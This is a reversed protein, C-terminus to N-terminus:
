RKTPESYSGWFPVICISSSSHMTCAHSRQHYPLVQVTFFASRKERERRRSKKKRERRSQIFIYSELHVYLVRIMSPVLASNAVVHGQHHTGLTVTTSISPETYHRKKEPEELGRAFTFKSFCYVITVYMREVRVIEHAIHAIFCAHLSWPGNHDLDSSHKNRFKFHNEQQIKKKREFKRLKNGLRPFM